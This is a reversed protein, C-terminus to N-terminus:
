GSAPPKKRVRDPRSAGSTSNWKAAAGNKSSPRVGGGSLPKANPGTTMLGVERPFTPRRVGIGSEFGVTSQLKRVVSSSRALTTAPTRMASSIAECGASRVIWRSGSLTGSESESFSMTAQTSRALWVTYWGVDVHAIPDTTSASSRTKPTSPSRTTSADTIGRIVRAFVCAAVIMIASFAESM